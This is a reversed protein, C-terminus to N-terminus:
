LKSVFDLNPRLFKAVNLLLPKKKICNVFTHNSGFVHSFYVCVGEIDKNGLGGMSERDIRCFFKWWIRM